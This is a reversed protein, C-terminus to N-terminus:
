AATNIKKNIRLEHELITIIEKTKEKAWDVLDQNVQDKAVDLVSKGINTKSNIDAGHQLLLQVIDPRLFQTARVLPSLGNYDKTNPNAGAELLAKVIKVDTGERMAEILMSQDYSNVFNPDAGMQLFLRVAELENVNIAYNLKYNLSYFIYIEKTRPFFHVLGGSVESVFRLPIFTRNNIIEPAVDLELITKNNISAEKKGIQMQLTDSGKAGIIKRQSSEWKVEFGFREFLTRFEVLTRGNKIVPQVNFKVEQNDIFVTLPEKASVNNSSVM